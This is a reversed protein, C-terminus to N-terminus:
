ADCKNCGQRRMRQVGTMANTAGSKQCENCGRRLMQQVRKLMQQAGTVANTAGGRDASTAGANTASGQGDANTANRANTPGTKANAACGCDDNVRQNYERVLKTMM